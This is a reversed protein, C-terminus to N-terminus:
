IRPLPPLLTYGNGIEARLVKQEPTYAEELAVVPIVKRRLRGANTYLLRMDDFENFMTGLLDNMNKFIRAYLTLDRPHELTAILIGLETPSIHVAKRLGVFRLDGNPTDLYIRHYPTPFSIKGIERLRELNLGGM